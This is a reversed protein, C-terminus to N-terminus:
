FNKSKITWEAPFGSLDHNKFIKEGNETKGKFQYDLWAIVMPSFEGGFQKLYTGGHGVPLNVQAIPTTYKEYDINANDYAIDTPGGIVYLTPHDIKYVSEPTAGAMSVMNGMGSNMIVSTKVRPDASAFICQAGGCSMGMACIKETDIMKGYPSKKDKAQAGAWDMAEILQESKTGGSHNALENGFSGQDFPGIGIVFYGHSALENLYHEHELSSNACAGNGFVIVPLKGEERVANKLKQPCYMTFGPMGSESFAVAKYPGSGGEDIIKSETVKANMNMSFLICAALFLKKMDYLHQNTKVAPGSQVTQQM